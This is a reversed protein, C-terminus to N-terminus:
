EPMLSLRAILVTFFSQRLNSIGATFNIDFELISTRSQPAVVTM